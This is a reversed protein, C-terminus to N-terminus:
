NTINLTAGAMIKNPDAINNETAIASFTTDYKKAISTFNDGNNITYTDTSPASSVTNLRSPDKSDSQM